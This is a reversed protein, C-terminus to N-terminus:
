SLAVFANMIVYTGDPIRSPLPSNGAGRYITLDNGATRITLDQIVSQASDIIATGMTGVGTNKCSFGEPLSVVIGSNVTGHSVVRFRGTVFLFVGGCNIYNFTINDFTADGNSATSKVTPM